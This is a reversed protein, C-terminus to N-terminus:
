EEQGGVVVMESIYPIRRRMVKLRVGPVGEPM